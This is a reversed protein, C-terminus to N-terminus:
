EKLHWIPGYYLTRDGKVSMRATPNSADMQYHFRLLEGVSFHPQGFVRRYPGLRSLLLKPLHSSHPDERLAITASGGAPTFPSPGEGQGAPSIIRVHTVNFPTTFGGRLLAVTQLPETLCGQM